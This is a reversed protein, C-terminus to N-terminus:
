LSKTGVHGLFVTGTVSKELDKVELPRKGNEVVVFQDPGATGKCEIQRHGASKDGHSPCGNDRHSGGM